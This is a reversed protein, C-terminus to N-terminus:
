PRGGEFGGAVAPLNNQLEEKMEAARNRIEDRFLEQADRWAALNEQITDRIAERQQQADVFAERATNLADLLGALDEPMGEFKPVEIVPGEPLDFPPLDVPPVDTPPQDEVVSPPLEPQTPVDQAQLVSFSGLACALLLVTLTKM